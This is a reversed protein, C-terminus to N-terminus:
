GSGGGGWEDALGGAIADGVNGVQLQIEDAGLPEFEAAMREIVPLLALDGERVARCMCECRDAEFFRFYTSWDKSRWEDRRARTVNTADLVVTRHGALFASRVMIKATAWVLPEASALFKQGHIALRIADPSVIAARLQRAAQQAWTSKGSRPLGVTCILMNAGM